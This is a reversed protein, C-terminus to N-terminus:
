VSKIGEETQPMLWNQVAERHQKILDLLYARVGETTHNATAYTLATEVLNNEFQKLTEDNM